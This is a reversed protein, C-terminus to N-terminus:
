QLDFPWSIGVTFVRGAHSDTGRFYDVYSGFVDIRPLSYSASAGVHWYNDRLLRDHQIRRESTNVDGAFGLANPPDSGIRLGGHTRQWAALGRVSLKTTVLFGADFGANSRNNPIDLVREVVAYSYHGQVSLRPSIADLRKGADVRLRVEKLRRGVVAEGQFDYSHSPVGVSVSPTLGVNGNALNYRATFGFDQWGSHWCFCSDVPLFGFPTQGPGIYKSFVYPLGASFSLRDTVAYEGEVFIGLNTSKGDPLHFGNTLLHGTNEITQYVVNVSGVGAPPVWAQARVVGSVTLVMAVAALSRFGRTMGATSATPYM